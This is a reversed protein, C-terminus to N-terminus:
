VGSAREQAAELNSVTPLIDRRAPEEGRVGIERGNGRGRLCIRDNGAALSM